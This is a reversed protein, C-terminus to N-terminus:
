ILNLILTQFDEEGFSSLLIRLYQMCITRLNTYYFNTRITPGTANDTFYYGFVIQIYLAFKQIDEEGFSSLM